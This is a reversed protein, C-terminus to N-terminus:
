YFVGFRRRIGHHANQLNLARTAGTRGGSLQPHMEGGAPLPARTLLKRVMPRQARHESWEKWCGEAV